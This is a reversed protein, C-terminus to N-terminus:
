SIDGGALLAYHGRGGCARGANGTQLNEEHHDNQRTAKVYICLWIYFPYGDSTNYLVSFQTMSQSSRSSDSSSPCAPPGPLLPYM